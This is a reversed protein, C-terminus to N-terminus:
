YNVVRAFNMTSDRYLHGGFASASIKDNLSRCYQLCLVGSLSEIDLWKKWEMKKETGSNNRHRQQMHVGVYM